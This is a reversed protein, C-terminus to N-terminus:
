AERASSLPPSATKRGRRALPHEPEAGMVARYWAKAQVRVFTDANGAVTNLEVNGSSFFVDQLFDETVSLLWHSLFEEEGEPLGAAARAARFAAELRLRLPRRRELWYKYVNPRAKTISYLIPSLGASKLYGEYHARIVTHAIVYIDDVGEISTEMYTFYSEMREVAIEEIAEDKTAFHFYFAGATLGTADCIDVLTIETWDKRRALNVIADKILSRTRAGKTIKVGSDKNTRPL